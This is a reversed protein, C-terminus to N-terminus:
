NVTLSKIVAGDEIEDNILGILGRVQDRGIAGEGVLQVEFNSSRAEPESAGSVFGASSPPGGSAGGSGSVSQSAIASVNAFGTALVAAMPAISAPYVYTALVKTAGEYTSVISNAIAAAQGIKFLKENESRMLASLGGFVQRALQLKTSIAKAEIDAMDKTHKERIRKEVEDAEADISGKADRYAQLRELDQAFKEEIIEAETAFSEQLKEFDEDTLTSTSGGGGRGDDTKDFRKNNALEMIDFKQNPAGGRGIGQKFPSIIAEALATDGMQIAQNFDSLISQPIGELPDKINLPKADFNPTNAEIEAKNKNFEAVQGNVLGLSEALAAIITGVSTAAPILAETMISAMAELAPANELLARTMDTSITDSIDSLIKDLAVGNQILEDDLIRGTRQAEDGLRKLESGNNKLLPILATSDSAMAELFFTMEQQTLNAKELSTVYLQLADPGSLKAFQDATVGVKPAIQEFFDRMPGGGTTLFDGVRDNVDKLIDALKEQSINVTDAASAMKQFQVTGANAIRAMNNIEVAAAAAKKGAAFVAVGMAAAATAVVAGAKAMKKAMAATDGGFGKVIKSGKGMERKLPSIDAGVAIAVDGIIKSM